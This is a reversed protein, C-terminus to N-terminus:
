VMRGEKGTDSAEVQAELTSSDLAYKLDLLFRETAAHEGLVERVHHRLLINLIDIWCGDRVGIDPRSAERALVEGEGSHPGASTESSVM